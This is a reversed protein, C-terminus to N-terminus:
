SPTLVAETQPATILKNNATPLMIIIVLCLAPSFKSCVADDMIIFSM